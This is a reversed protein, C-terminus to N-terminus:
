SLRKKHFISTPNLIDTCSILCIYRSFRTQKQKSNPVLTFSYLLYMNYINSKSKSEKKTTIVETSAMSIM